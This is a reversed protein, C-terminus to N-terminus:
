DLFMLHDDTMDVSPFTDLLAKDRDGHCQVLTRHERLGNGAFGGDSPLGTLSAISVQGHWLVLWSQFCALVEDDLIYFNSRWLVSLDSDLNKPSHRGRRRVRRTTQGDPVKALVPIQWVYTRNLSMNLSMEEPWRVAHWKM